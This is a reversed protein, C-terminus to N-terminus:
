RYCTVHVVSTEITYKLYKICDVKGTANEVTIYM